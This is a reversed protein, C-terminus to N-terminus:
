GLLTDVIVPGLTERMSAILTDRDAVRLKLAKELDLYKDEWNPCLEDLNVREGTAMVEYRTQFGSATNREISVAQGKEVDTLLPKRKDKEMKLIRSVKQATTKSLGVV